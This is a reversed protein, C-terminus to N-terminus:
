DNVSLILTRRRSTTTRALDGVVATGVASFELVHSGWTHNTEEVTVGVIGEAGLEERRPRCASWRSSARTTSRRRTTRCSSTRARTRSGAPHPGPARHSLRLQGDRLRGPSLRRPAADLLGPGLPGVTFPKGNPARWNGGRERSRGRHRDRPVRHRQQGVRPPEGHPARRRHRRRRARRGGRGHAGDRARALPLAGAHAHQMEMNKSWRAVSIVSTISARAGDRPRGPPLGGGQRAPVRQGVPRQHLLPAPADADAARARAAPSGRRASSRAPVFRRADRDFRIYDLPRSRVEIATHFSRRASSPPALAVVAARGAPLREIRAHEGGVIAPASPSMSTANPLRASFSSSSSGPSCARRSLPPTSDRLLSM